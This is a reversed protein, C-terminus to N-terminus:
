ALEEALASELRAIESEFCSHILKGTPWAQLSPLTDKGWRLADLRTTIEDVKKGSEGARVGLAYAEDRAKELRAFSAEYKEHADEAACVIQELEAVKKTLADREATLAAIHAHAAKWTFGPPCNPPQAPISDSM